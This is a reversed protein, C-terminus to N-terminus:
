KKSKPYNSEYKEIWLQISKFVVLVFFLTIITFILGVVTYGLRFLTDSLFGVGLCIVAYTFTVTFGSIFISKKSVM